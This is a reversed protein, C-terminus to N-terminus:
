VTFNKKLKVILRIRPNTITDLPKLRKGIATAAILSHDDRGLEVGIM